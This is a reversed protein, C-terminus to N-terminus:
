GGFYRIGVVLLVTGCVISVVWIIKNWAESQEAKEFQEAQAREDTSKFIDDAVKQLEADDDGIGDQYQSTKRLCLPVCSRENLIQHWHGDEGKHQNDSDILWANRRGDDRVHKYHAPLEYETLLRGDDTFLECM